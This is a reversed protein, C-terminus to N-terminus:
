HISYSFSVSDIKSTFWLKYISGIVAKDPDLQAEKRYRTVEEVFGRFCYTEVYEIVQHIKSVRLGINLYFKLLETNVLFERAAMGSTLFQRSKGM